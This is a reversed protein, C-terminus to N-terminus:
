PRSPGLSARLEAPVRAADIEVPPEMAAPAPMAGALAEPSLPVLVEDLRARVGGWRAEVPLSRWGDLSLKCGMRDLARRAALPVFPLTEDIGEFGYVGLSPRPATMRPLM